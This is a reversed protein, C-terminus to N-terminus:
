TTHCGVCLSSRDLSLATHNPHRSAGDHCSTCSLMVNGVLVIERPLEDVARLPRAMRVSEYNVWSAHQAHVPQLMADHCGVCVSASTLSRVAKALQCGSSATERQLSQSYTRSAAAFRASVNPPSRKAGGSGTACGLAIMSIVPLSIRM